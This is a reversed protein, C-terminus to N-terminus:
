ESRTILGTAFDVEYKYENLHHYRSKITTITLQAGQAAERIWYCSDLAHLAPTNNTNRATVATLTICTGYQQSLQNLKSTFDIKVPQYSVGDVVAYKYRMTELEQRLVSDFDNINISRVTILKLVKDRSLNDLSKLLERSYTDLLEKIMKSSMEDTCYLSSHGKAARILLERLMLRTKGVGPTGIFMSVSGMPHPILPEHASDDFDDLRLIPFIDEELTAGTTEPQTTKCISNSFRVARLDSYSFDAGDVISHSLDAGYLSRQSLDCYSLDLSSLDVYDLVRPWCYDEREAPSAEQWYLRFSVPDTVPDPFLVM